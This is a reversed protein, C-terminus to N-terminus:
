GVHDGFSLHALKMKKLQKDFIDQFMKWIDSDNNAIGEMPKM